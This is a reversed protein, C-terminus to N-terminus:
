NTALQMSQALCRLRLPRWSASALTRNQRQVAPLLPFDQRPDTQRRLCRSPGQFPVPPSNDSIIRPKAGPHKELARQIIIEVDAETM